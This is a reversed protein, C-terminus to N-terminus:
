PFRLRFRGAQFEPVKARSYLSPLVPKPRWGVGAKVEDSADDGSVGAYVTSRAWCEGAGAPISRWRALKWIAM